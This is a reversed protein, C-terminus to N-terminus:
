KASRHWVLPVELSGVRLIGRVEGNAKDFRGEYGFNVAPVGLELNDGDQSILEVTSTYDGSDLLILQGTAPGEEGNALKLGLRMKFAGMDLLGQWGGELAKQISTSPRPLDVQPEGVRKLSLQLSHGAQEYTGALTGDEALRAAVKPEGMASKVTFALAPGDVSLDKLPAGKVGFAPFIASGVWGGESTKAIDLVVVIPAAPTQIMGEWRGALGAAAAASSYAPSAALTALFMMLRSACSCNILM